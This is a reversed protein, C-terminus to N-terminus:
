GTSSASPTPFNPDSAADACRAAGCPVVARASQELTEDDSVPEAEAAPPALDSRVDDWYKESWGMRVTEKTDTQCAGDYRM